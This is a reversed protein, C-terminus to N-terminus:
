SKPRHAQSPHPKNPGHEDGRRSNDSSGHPKSKGSAKSANLDGCAIITGAPVGNTPAAVHVNVSYRKAPDATFTVSTGKTNANGSANSTLTGNGGADHTRYTWGAVPAGTAACSGGHVHWLYLTGPALNRVHLAVKDHKKADVLRAHGVVDALGATTAAPDVADLSAKYTKASHGADASAISAIGLAAISAIAVTIRRTM